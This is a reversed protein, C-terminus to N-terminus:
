YSADQKTNENFPELVEPAYEEAWTWLDSWDQWILEDHLMDWVKDKMEEYTMNFIMGDVIAAVIEDRDDDTWAQPKIM